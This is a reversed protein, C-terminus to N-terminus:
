TGIAGNDAFPERLLMHGFGVVMGEKSSRLSSVDRSMRRGGRTSSRSAQLSIISSSGVARNMPPTIGRAMHQRASIVIIPAHCAAPNAINETM